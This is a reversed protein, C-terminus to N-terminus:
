RSGGISSGTVDRPGLTGQQFGRVSGLGGSYFNKFVPFPRGSLGKGYGLEGNFAFTYQKNIPWYQQYQYNGRLYRADGAVGWEGSLRQLRGTTPTVASDRDDRSWGITLPISSSTYGFREAYALYAAPINTGPEIETREFGGGFFVTDVESFPIGFRLGAGSTILRYNGGQDEYPRSSRHYLDFTRSIGDPTFYPDVSNFVLTRNYKSTNVEVGLYNGTGFANEQKVSFSLALKEASSFGAGLQLSGTPRENVTVTLDVQDPAGPVDITEVNVEKFFGLRDLRERSLKIKEADYWSSEFQRFERRVV